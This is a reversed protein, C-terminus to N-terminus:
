QAFLFFAYQKGEVGHNSRKQAAGMQKGFAAYYGYVFEAYELGRSQANCSPTDLHSCIIAEMSFGFEELDLFVESHNSTELRFM